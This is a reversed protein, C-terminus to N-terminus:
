EEFSSDAIEVKVNDDKKTAAVTVFNIKEDIIELLKYFM